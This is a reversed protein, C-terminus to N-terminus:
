NTCFIARLSNINCTAINICVYVTANTNVICYIYVYVFYVSM